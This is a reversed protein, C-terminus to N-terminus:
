IIGHLNWSSVNSFPCLFFMLVYRGFFLIATVVIIKKRKKLKDMIKMNDTDKM